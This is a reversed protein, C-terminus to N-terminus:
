TLLPAIGQKVGEIAVRLVNNYVRLLQGGVYLVHSELLEATAVRLIYRGCNISTSYM